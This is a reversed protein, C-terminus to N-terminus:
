EKLRESDDALNEPNAIEYVRVARRAAPDAQYGAAPGFRRAWVVAGGITIIPWNRREWLPVRGAEFLLKLKIRESHGAPQYADGPRWSRVELVRDRLGADLLHYGSENYVSVDLEENEVLELCLFQSAFPLRIRAPPTVDLRWYRGELRMEGPPGLRLWEYSRIADIGPAQLRGSGEASEALERMAEIHAYEVQRLDGRVERVAHRVLRRAAALPLGRLVEVPLIVAPGDRHLHQRALRDIETQWYSEEAAATEALNALVDAIAPNWDRAMAPILEHRIRNRTFAPDRNSADERWSLGQTQLWDQVEARTAGLLPRIFGEPTVPRMGALGTAGSGRLLRFLVTEAQDSRTHGLAMRDAGGGRLADLFFARRAERAAEELNGGAARVDVTRLHFPVGFAAALDRVFRADAASGSGRLQHDLHYVSLALNWRPAIQHLLSLLCVSDAGGSVAVGVRHGPEVMRHREIFREVRERM